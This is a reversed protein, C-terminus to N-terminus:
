DKRALAWGCGCAAAGVVLQLWAGVAPFYSVTMGHGSMKMKSNMVFLGIIAVLTCVVLAALLINNVLSMNFNFKLVGLNKLLMVVAM